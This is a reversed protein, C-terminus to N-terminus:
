QTMWQALLIFGLSLLIIGGLIAYSRPNGLNVTYGVGFRKEVWISPDDSNIYVLGAKWFRDDDRRTKGLDGEQEDTDPELRTGGQGTHYALVVAYVLIFLTPIIMMIVFLPAALTLRRVMQLQSLLFPLQLVLSSIFAWQIWHARFRADYHLSLRPNEVDVYRKAKRFIGVVFLMIGLLFLQTLPLFLVSLPSKDVWRDAHGFLNYHIAIRDPIREYDQFGLWASFICALLPILFWVLSLGPKISNEEMPSLMVQKRQKMPKLTQKLAVAKRHFIQYIGLFLLIQVIAGFPVLWTWALSFSLAAIGVFLILGLAASWVRYSRILTNIEPRRCDDKPWRVGFILDKRTLDPMILFLLFVLLLPLFSALLHFISIM